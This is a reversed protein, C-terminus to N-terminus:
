RIPAASAQVLTRGGAMVPAVPQPITKLEAAARVQQTARAHERYLPPTVHVRDEAAVPTAALVAAALALSAFAHIQRMILTRSSRPNRRGSCSLVGKHPATHFQHM